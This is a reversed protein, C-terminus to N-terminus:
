NKDRRRAFALIEHKATLAGIEFETVMPLAGETESLKVDSMIDKLEDVNDNSLDFWYQDATPLQNNLAKDLTNNSATFTYSHTQGEGDTIRLEENIANKVTLSNKGVKLVVNNGSLKGGDLTGAGFVIRDNKGDFNYIEDKSAGDFIFVDAGAGGILKDKTGKEKAKNWGGDLTSGYEGAIIVNSQSNGLLYVAGGASSGDITKATSVIDAANITVNLATSAVTLRKGKGDLEVNENLGYIYPYSDLASEIDSGFYFQVATLSDVKNITLKSKKDDKFKVTVVNKKDTLIIDDAFVDAGTIVIKDGADYLSANYNKNGIKDKGGGPSYVFVDAGVNGYLKDNKDSGVLTSGSADSEETIEAGIIMPLETSEEVGGFTISGEGVRVIFNGDGTLTRAITGDIIQLTDTSAAGWVTDDGDGSRYQILQESGNLSIRDDGHGGDITILRGQDLYNDVTADGFLEILGQMIFTTEGSINFDILEEMVDADTKAFLNNGLAELVDPNNFRYVSIIGATTDMGYQTYSVTGDRAIVVTNRQVDEPINIGDFLRYGQENVIYGDADLHFNGDRTYVESGDPLQIKFYGDGNIALSIPNGTEKYLGDLAVGDKSNIILDNGLGGRITVLNGSNRITDDGAGANISVYDGLANNVSDNGDGGDIATLYKPEDRIDFTEVYGQILAPNKGSVNFDVMIESGSDDTEIYLNNDISELGDPNIFRYVRLQGVTTLMGNQVYEIVGNRDITVSNIDVDDPININDFLRHGDATAIYRDGDLTFQGDRTYAFNGDDLVVKFYGEGDIAVDLINDTAALSSVQVDLLSLKNTNYIIDNGNGGNITVSAENNSISDDGDAGDISVSTGYTKVFQVYDRELAGQIIATTESWIYHESGSFSTARFIDSDVSNIPELGSAAIFGYINIFGAYESQGDRIYSVTGDASFTLSNADVGDPLTIKFNDFLYYGDATVFYGDSDLVFNGNRTYAADGNPLQIKFFGAGNLALSIPNDVTEITGQTFTLREVPDGYVLQKVHNSIIDASDTGSEVILLDELSGQILSTKEDEDAFDILIEAGSEDTVSFLDEGISNLGSPNEFRYVSLTDIPTSQGGEIYFVTGDNAISISNSPVCINNWLRYGCNGNASNQKNGVYNTFLYGDSNTFLSGDRTYAPDGNPMQVKFFGDGNIAVDLARGTTTIVGDTFSISGISDAM